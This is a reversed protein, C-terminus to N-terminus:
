DDIYVWRYNFRSVAVAYHLPNNDNCSYFLRDDEPLLDVDHFVFCNWVSVDRMSEVFGINMLLGRNFALKDNPEILYMGYTINHRTCFVHMNNLFIKLNALRDRYPVIFAVRKYKLGFQSCVSDTKTFSKGGNILEISKTKLRQEIEEFSLETKDIFNTYNRGDKASITFNNCKVQDVSNFLDFNNM